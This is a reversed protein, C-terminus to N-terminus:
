LIVFLWRLYEIRDLMQKERKKDQIKMNNKKKYIGVKRSIKERKNLLAIIKKDIRDLEKRFGCFSKTKPAYFIESFKKNNKLPNKM